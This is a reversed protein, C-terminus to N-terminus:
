AGLRKDRRYRGAQRWSGARAAAENVHAPLVCRLPALILAGLPPIRLKVSYARNHTPVPDAEVVTLTEFESGGFRLDDSSLKEVYRGSLPVGIRYDERPVPTFNLVVIMIDSGDRRLYSIVTNDKDSCDIWEFSALDPDSRWLAPSARYLRGLEAIFDQLSRRQPHDAIHWDISTDHNWEHHQAFETGMFVLQKGPRTYQYILL